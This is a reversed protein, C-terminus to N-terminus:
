IRKLQECYSAGYEKLFLVDSNNVEYLTIGRNTRVVLVHYEYGELDYVLCQSGNLDVTDLVESNIIYGVSPSAAHVNPWMAVIMVMSLLVNKM